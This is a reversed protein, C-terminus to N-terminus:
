VIFILLHTGLEASLTSPCRNSKRIQSELVKNYGGSLVIEYSSLVSSDTEGLMIYANAFSRAYFKLLVDNDTANSDAIDYWTLYAYDTTFARM